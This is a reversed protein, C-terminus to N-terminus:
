HAFHGNRKRCTRTRRCRKSRRCRRRRCVRACVFLGDLAAEEAIQEDHRQYSFSDDEITLEFHKQMKTSKLERGVRLGIQDKGRLPKKARSVAQVVADLKKEAAALLVRRKRAREDALLPNRCM